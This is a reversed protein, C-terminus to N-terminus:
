QGCQNKPVASIIDTVGKDVGMLYCNGDKGFQYWQVNTARSDDQQSEDISYGDVLDNQPAQQVQSNNAQSSNARETQQRAQENKSDAILTGIIGGVILGGVVGAVSSHGHVGVSVHGRHGYSSGHGHGYGSSVHSSCGSIVILFPIVFTSHPFKM